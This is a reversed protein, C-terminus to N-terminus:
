KEARKLNVYPTTDLRLSIPKEVEPDSILLYPMTFLSIGVEEPAPVDRVVDGSDTVGITPPSLIGRLLDQQYPILEAYFLPFGDALRSLQLADLSAILEAMGQEPTLVEVPKPSEPKTDQASKRFVVVGEVISWSTGSARALGDLVTRLTQNELFMFIGDAPKPTAVIDIEGFKAVAAVANTMSADLLKMTIPKELSEPDLPAAHSCAV